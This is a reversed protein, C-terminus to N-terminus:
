DLTNPLLNCDLILLVLVANVENQRLCISLFIAAFSLGIAFGFSKILKIGYLGVNLTQIIEAAEKVLCLLVNITLWGFILLCVELLHSIFELLHFLFACVNLDFVKSLEIRVM